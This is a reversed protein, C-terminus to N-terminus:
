FKRLCLTLHVFPPSSVRSELLQAFLEIMSIFSRIRNAWLYIITDLSKSMWLECVQLDSSCLLPNAVTSVMSIHELRLKHLYLRHLAQYIIFLYTM